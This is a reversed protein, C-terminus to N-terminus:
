VIIQESLSLFLSSRTTWHIVVEVVSPLLPRRFLLWPGHSTSRASQDAADERRREKELESSMSLTCEANGDQRWSAVRCARGGHECRTFGLLGPAARGGANCARQRAPPPLSGDIAIGRAVLGPRGTGPPAPCQSPMEWGRQGGATEACRQNMHMPDSSSCM